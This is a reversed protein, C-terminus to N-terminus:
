VGSNYVRLGPQRRISWGPTIGQAHEAQLLPLQEILQGAIKIRAFASHNLEAGKTPGGSTTEGRPEPVIWSGGALAHTRVIAENGM